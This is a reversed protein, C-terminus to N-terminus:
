IARPGVDGSLDDEALSGGRCQAFRGGLNPRLEQLGQRGDLVVVIPARPRGPEQRGRRGWVRAVDDIERHLAPRDDVPCDISACVDLHRCDIPDEESSRRRPRDPAPRRLPHASGSGNSM